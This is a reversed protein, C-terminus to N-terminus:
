YKYIQLSSNNIAAIIFHRGKVVIPVLKRSDGNIRFGSALPLLTTFVDNDAGPLYWGYSADYRGYSPNVAYNNGVILLDKISDNNFDQILIDRAPSFQVEKPLIVAKFTGDGNNLFVASEFMDAKKVLSQEIANKGFIDTLTKGGFDSYSKFKKDFGAIQSSLEDFSAFPYSVGKEYSCIIPDITGNNDFDNLYIQVPEKVSAKLSTNLGLNGAILDIDGDSDIDAAKICNWWGSTEDLGASKTVDSFYGKDNRFICIKMWEGTVILDMDGDKDYDSWVADTAM